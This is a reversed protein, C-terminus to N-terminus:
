VHSYSGREPLQSASPAQAAAWAEQLHPCFDDMAVSHIKPGDLDQCPPMLQAPTYGNEGFFAASPKALKSQPHNWAPKSPCHQKCENINKALASSPLKGRTRKNCAGPKAVFCLTWAISYPPLLTTEACPLNQLSGPEPISWFGKHHWLLNSGESGLHGEPYGGVASSRREWRPGREFTPFSFQCIM